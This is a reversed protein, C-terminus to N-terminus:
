PSERLLPLQHFVTGWNSSNYEKKHQQKERKGENGTRATSIIIIGGCNVIVIVIVIIIIIVIIVEIHLLSRVEYLTVFSPHVGIAEITMITCYCSERMQLFAIVGRITSGTMTVVTRYMGVMGFIRRGVTRFAMGGTRNHRVMQVIELDGVITCFAMNMRITGVTVLM